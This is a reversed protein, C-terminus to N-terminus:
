LFEIIGTGYVHGIETADIKPMDIAGWVAKMEDNLYIDDYILIGKWNNEKLHKYVALEMVGFHNTDVFIINSFAILPNYYHEGKAESLSVNSPRKKWKIFNFYNDYTLVENRKNWALCVTSLGMYCGLESIHVDNNNESIWRLLRYHEQGAPMSLFKVEDVKHFQDVVPQMDIADLEEKTPLIM